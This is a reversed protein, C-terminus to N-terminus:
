RLHLVQNRKMTRGDQWSIHIWKYGQEDIIQKVGKLKEAYMMKVALDFLKKNVVREGTLSKIDAACGYLHDSNSAGGVKRNLIRSRYGSTVVIPAGWAQRLPQLVDECLRQLNWCVKESPTNDIHLARATQSATLEALTFNKCLRNEM